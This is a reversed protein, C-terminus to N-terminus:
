TKKCRSSFEYSLAVLTVSNPYKSIEIQRVTFIKHCRRNTSSKNRNSLCLTSFPMALYRLNTVCECHCHFEPIQDNTLQTTEVINNFQHQLKFMKLTSFDTPPWTLFVLCPQRMSKGLFSSFCVMTATICTLVILIFVWTRSQIFCLLTAFAFWLIWLWAAFILDDYQTVLFKHLLFFHQLMTSVTDTFTQYSSQSAVAHSNSSTRSLIRSTLAKSKSVALFRKSKSLRTFLPRCMPALTIRLPASKRCSTTLSNICYDM